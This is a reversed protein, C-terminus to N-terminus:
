TFGVIEIERELEIGFNALVSRKIGESLNYIEEGSANGHNVLVLAQKDHIGADGMRKGKWGCQDILWGAALKKGGSKDDYVPIDPHLKSLNEAISPGVVPNKFFSGANGIIIPDPLKRRRINIIAERANKLNPKGLKLIEDHLSDYELKLLPETTLRFFVKTIFYMGKLEEKFISNRYGFRCDNNSFETIVGDRVSIARVKEITKKVEVGYAGINQVPAAGVNGPIMSLNELGGFGNEVNWKVFKDWNIGSGSSVLVYEPHREEITIGEIESHLLTGKFNKIFLLNSGGGLIFLPHSISNHNSLLSIAEEESKVSILYDAKYELGFTNYGKLSVNRLIM